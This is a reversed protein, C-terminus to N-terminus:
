RARGLAQALAEVVRQSAEHQRLTLPPYTKLVADSIEFEVQRAGAPPLCWTLSQLRKFELDAPQTKILRSPVRRGLDLELLPGCAPSPGAELDLILHYAAKGQGLHAVAPRAYLPALWRSRLRFLSGPGLRFRLGRALAKMSFDGEAGSVQLSGRELPGEDGLLVDGSAAHAGSRIEQESEVMVLAAGSPMEPFYRRREGEQLWALTAQASASVKLGAGEELTLRPFAPISGAPAGFVAEGAALLGCAIILILSTRPKTV